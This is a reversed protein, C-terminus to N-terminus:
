SLVPTSVPLVITIIYKIEAGTNIKVDGQGLLVPYSSLYCQKKTEGHKSPYLIVPHYINIYFYSFNMHRFVRTFNIKLNVGKEKESSGGM